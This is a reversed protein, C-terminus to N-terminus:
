GHTSIWWTTGNGDSIGGRMDGDPGRGPEQVVTGGAARARDFTAVADPVCVHVNIDSADAAGGGPAEGLMVVTDDIWAEAHMTGGGERPIVQIRRADFVAEMFALAREADQVILYPSVSSYGEAKWSM